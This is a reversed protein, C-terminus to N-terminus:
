HAAINCRTNEGSFRPCMRRPLRRIGIALFGLKGANIGFLPIDCGLVYRVARLFTGDGGIVVAFDVSNRWEQDSVGPIGLLSAEYPPALFNVEERQGWLILRQAIVLATKKQTNVM